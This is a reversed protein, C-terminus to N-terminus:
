ITEDTDGIASDMNVKLLETAKHLRHELVSVKDPTLSKENGNYGVAKAHAPFHVAIYRRADDTSMEPQTAALAALALNVLDSVRTPIPVDTGKLSANIAQSARALTDVFTKAQIHLKM